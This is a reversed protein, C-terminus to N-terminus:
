VIDVKPLLVVEYKRDLPNDTQAAAMAAMGFILAACISVILVFFKFYRAM